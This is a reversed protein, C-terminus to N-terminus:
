HSDYRVYLINDKPKGSVPPRAWPAGQFTSAALHQEGTFTFTSTFTFTFTFDNGNGSDLGAGHVWGTCACSCSMCTAM